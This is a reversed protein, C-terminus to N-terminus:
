LFFEGVEPRTGLLPPSILQGRLVAMQVGDRGGEQRIDPSIVEGRQPETNEDM